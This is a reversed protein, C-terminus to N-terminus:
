PGTWEMTKTDLIAWNYNTGDCDFGTVRLEGWPRAISREYARHLHGHILYKPKVQDVIVSLLKRHEDSTFIDKHSFGFDPFSHTVISPCEHTIMVDAHGNSIVGQAQEQTIAEEAWWSKIGTQEERSVRYRKDLSTAGGLFLWEKDHFKYRFGRELWAINTTLPYLSADPLYGAMDLSESKIMKAQSHLWPHNEHNGDIAWLTINYEQLKATLGQLYLEGHKGPYFGFDGLHILLKNEEDELYPAMRDIQGPKGDRGIVWDLNGHWDGAIIVKVPDSM